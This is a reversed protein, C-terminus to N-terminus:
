GASGTGPAAEAASETVEDWDADHSHASSDGRNGRRREVSTTWFGGDHWVYAVVVGVPNRAKNTCLLHM